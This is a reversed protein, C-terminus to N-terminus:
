QTRLPLPSLERPVKTLHPGPSRIVEWLGAASVLLSPHPPCVGEPRPGVRPGGERWGLPPCHPPSSRTTDPLQSGPGGPVEPLGCPAGHPSGASCTRRHWLAAQPQLSSGPADVGAVGPGDQTTTLETKCDSFVGCSLHSGPFAPCWRSGGDGQSQSPDRKPNLTHMQPEERLLQSTSWPHGITSFRFDEQVCTLLHRAPKREM